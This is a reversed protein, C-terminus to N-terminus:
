DNQIVSCFSALFNTELVECLLSSTLELGKSFEVLYGKGGQLSLDFLFYAGNREQYLSTM